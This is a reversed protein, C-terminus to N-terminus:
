TALGSFCFRVHSICQQNISMNQSIKSCVIYVMHQAQGNHLNCIYQATFSFLTVFIQDACNVTRLDGIIVPTLFCFFQIHLHPFLNM